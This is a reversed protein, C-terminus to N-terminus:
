TLLQQLRQDKDRFLQQLWAACGEGDTPVDELPYRRVEVKIQGVQGALLDWLSPAQGPYAITVDYVAQLHDQLGELTAQFGRVRPILVRLPKAVGQKSAFEQALALRSPRLRTGEPYIIVWVPVRGTQFRHLQKVVRKRDENWNRKMFICELFIMGWGPGPIWKIIDKIFFKMDGLRRYRWGLMLQVITDVASQHNALMVANENAPLEDGSIQLTLGGFTQAMWAVYSWYIRAWFSNYRRFWYPSASKWLISVFQFFNIGVLPVFILVSFFIARLTKIPTFQSFTQAM